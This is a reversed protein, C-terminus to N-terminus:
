ARDGASEGRAALPVSAEITMGAGPRSEVRLTGGLARVREQMGLLGFSAPKRPEGTIMGQGDDGIRLVVHHEASYRLRIRVRTAHAHRAVNGLAEQTVRYLCTALEPPLPAASGGEAQETVRCDVGTRRQFRSALAELAPVLGLDELMQPRLDNILRRTSELAAAALEGTEELLPAVEDPASDLRQAAAVLDIRIAALTQQLDDHLERAIRKREHEQVKDQAALLRRLEAHSNALAERTEVLSTIDRMVVVVASQGHDDISTAAFEVLRVEGDARVVKAQNLPAVGAAGLPATIRGRVAEVSDPHILSLTDRGLLGAEDTRFLAQAVENVFSIRNGTNVLVAEPLTVLLRRLAAEGERLASEARRRESIDRMIVTYLRDGGINLHSIAADVPFEEGDARLGMVDRQRGMHRSSITDNGFRRMSHAHNARHREPILQALPAGQLSAVDRGFMSAAAPNASVINHAEDVTIIAVTASEVIGRLQAESKALLAEARKRPTIDRMSALLAPEGDYVVPTASVEVDVSSGDAKIFTQDHRPIAHGTAMADSVRALVAQHHDGHLVDLSPTGILDQARRGLLEACAANVFRVRGDVHVSIAEPLWEVLTRYRADAERRGAEAADRAGLMRNFQTAALWILGLALLILAAALGISLREQGALM